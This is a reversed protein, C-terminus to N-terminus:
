YYGDPWHPRRLRRGRPRLGGRGPRGALARVLAKGRFQYRALVYAGPFALLLTLVTSVVAQWLTFWLIGLFYRSTFLQSLAAVDVRGQPWLGLRLVAALPYFYFLAFFLLPLLFIAVKLRRRAIPHDTVRQM